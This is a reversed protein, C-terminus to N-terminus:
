HLSVCLLLLLQLLPLRWRSRVSRRRSLGLLRPYNGRVAALAHTVRRISESCKMQAATRARM